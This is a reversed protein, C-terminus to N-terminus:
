PAAHVDIAAARLFFWFNGSGNAMCSPVRMALL